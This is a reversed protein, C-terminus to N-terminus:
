NDEDVYKTTEHTYYCANGVPEVTFVTLVHHQEALAALGDSNATVSVADHEARLLEFCVLQKLYISM